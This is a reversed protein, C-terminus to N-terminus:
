PNGILTRQEQYVARPNPFSEISCGMKAKGNCMIDSNDEINLMVWDVIKRNKNELEIRLQGPDPYYNVINANGNRDTINKNFDNLFILKYPKVDRFYINVKKARPVLGYVMQDVSNYYQVKEVANITKGSALVPMIRFSNLQSKFHVVYYNIKVIKKDKQVYVSHLQSSYSCLPLMLYLFCLSIRMLRKM